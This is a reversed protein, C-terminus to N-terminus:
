AGGGAPLAADAALAADAPLAADAALAPAHRREGASPAAGHRGRTQM